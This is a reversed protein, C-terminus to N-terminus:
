TLLKQANGLALNGIEYYHDISFHVVPKKLISCAQGNNVFAQFLFSNGFPFRLVSTWINPISSGIMEFNRKRLWVRKGFDCGALYNSETRQKMEANGSQQRQFFKTNLRFLLYLCAHQRERPHRTSFRFRAMSFCHGNFFVSLCFCVVVLPFFFSYIGFCILHWM